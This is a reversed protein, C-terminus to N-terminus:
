DKHNKGQDFHFQTNRVLPFETREAGLIGGSFLIKVVVCVGFQKNWSTSSLHTTDRQECRGGVTVQRSDPAMTMDISPCM